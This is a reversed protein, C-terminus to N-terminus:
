RGNEVGNININLIRALDSTFKGFCYRRKCADFHVDNGHNTYHNVASAGVVVELSAVIVVMNSFNAAVVKGAADPLYSAVVAIAAPLPAVLTYARIIIPTEALTDKLSQKARSLFNAM